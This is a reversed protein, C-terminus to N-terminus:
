KWLFSWGPWPPNGPVLGEPESCEILRYPPLTLALPLRALDYYFIGTSVLPQLYGLEGGQRETWPQQFYLRGHCVRSPEIPGTLYPWGRSQPLPEYPIPQIDPLQFTQTNKSTERLLRARFEQETELRFLEEQNPPLTKIQIVSEQLDNRSPLPAPTKPKPVPLLSPPGEVKGEKPPGFLVPPRISSPKKDQTLRGENEPLGLRVGQARAPQSLAAFVAMLLLIRGGTRNPQDM